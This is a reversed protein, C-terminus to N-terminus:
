KRATLKVQFTDLLLFVLIGWAAGYTFGVWIVALIKLISLVLGVIILAVM